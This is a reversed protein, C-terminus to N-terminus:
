YGNVIISACEHGNLDFTDPVVGCAFNLLRKSNSALCKPSPTFRPLDRLSKPIAIPLNQEAGVFQFQDASERVPKLRDLRCPILRLFIALALDLIFGTSDVSLVQEITANSLNM